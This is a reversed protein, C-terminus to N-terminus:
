GWMRLMPASVASRLRRGHRGPQGNAQRGRMESVAPDEGFGVAAVEEREYGDDARVGQCSALVEARNPSDAPTGSGIDIVVVADDSKPRKGLVPCESYKSSARGARCRVGPNEAVASSATMACRGGGVVRAAITSPPPGM